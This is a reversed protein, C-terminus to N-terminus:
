GNGPKVFCISQPNNEGLQGNRPYHDTILRVNRMAKVKRKNNNNNKNTFAKIDKSLLRFSHSGMGFQQRAKAENITSKKKKKM